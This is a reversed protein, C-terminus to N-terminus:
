FLSEIEEEKNESNTSEVKPAEEVVTPIVEEQKPVEVQPIEVEKPTVNLPEVSEMKPQENVPPTTPEVNNVTPIAGTNELPNAGGYIPRHQEGPVEIKPIVPNAGGYITKPEENVITIPEAASVEQNSIVTSDQVNEVTVPQEVVEPAINSVTEETSQSSDAVPTIPVVEEGTENGVPTPMESIVQNVVNNEGQEEVKSEIGTNNGVVPAANIVSDTEVVGNQNAQPQIVDPELSAVAPAVNEVVPTSITPSTNSVSDTTVVNNQELSVVAPAANEVVSPTNVVEEVDSAENKDKKGSKSGTAIFIILAILLLLVGGTILLGPISTFFSLDFNALIM